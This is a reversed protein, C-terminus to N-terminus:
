SVISRTPIQKVRLESQQCGIFAWAWAQRCHGNDCHESPSTGSVTSSGQVATGGAVGEINCLDVAGKVTETGDLVSAVTHTCSGAAAGGPLLQLACEGLHRCMM